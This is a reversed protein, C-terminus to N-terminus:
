NKRKVRLVLHVFFFYGKKLRIFKQYKVEKIKKYRILIMHVTNQLSLSVKKLKYKNTNLVVIAIKFIFDLNLLLTNGPRDRLTTNNNNSRISALLFSEQSKKQPIIKINIETTFPVENFTFVWLARWLSIQSYCCYGISIPKELKMDTGM